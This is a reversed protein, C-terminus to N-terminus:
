AAAAHCIACGSGVPANHRHFLVAVRTRRGAKPREGEAADADDVAVDARTREIRKALRDDGGARGGLAGRALDHEPDDRQDQPRQNEDDREFVHEDQQAGVVLAFAAGQRQHRQRLPRQALACGRQHEEADDARRQEVAIRQDRRRQRHEGGDLAELDDGGRELVIHHRQGHPDQDGQEDRLRVAGRADRRQEARDREHPEDDDGDGPDGMQDGVRAHEQGEVRAMADAEEQLVAHDPEHGQAGHEERDGARLCQIRVETMEAAARDLDGPEGDHQRREGQVIEPLARQHEGIRLRDLIREEQQKWGPGQQRHDAQRRRRGHDGALRHDRTRVRDGLLRDLEAQQRPELDTVGRFGLDPLDVHRPDVRQQQEAHQQQDAQETGGARKRGGVPNGHGPVM